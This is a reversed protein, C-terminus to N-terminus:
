KNLGKVNWPSNTASILRKSNLDYIKKFEEWDKKPLLSINEINNRNGTALGNPFSVGGLDTLIFRNHLDSPNKEQWQFINVSGNSPLIGSYFEEITRTPKCKHRELSSTHMECRELEGVPRNSFIIEFFSKMSAKYNSSCSCLYPDVFKVWKCLLLMSRVADSMDKADRNIIKGTEVQWIDENLEGLTHNGHLKPHRGKNEKVLIAHFPFRENEVLANEHWKGPYDKTRTRKIQVEKLRNIIEILRGQSQDEVRGLSKHARRDWDKPLQTVFRGKDMEFSEWFYKYDKRDKAWAAVLEPDIAYEKIM